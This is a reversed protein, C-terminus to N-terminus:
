GGSTIRAAERCASARQHDDAEEAEAAQALYREAEAAREQVFNTRCIEDVDHRSLHEYPM